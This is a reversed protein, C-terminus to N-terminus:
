IEIENVNTIWRINRMNKQRKKLWGLEMSDKMYLNVFTAVKDARYRLLRGLTQIAEREVSTYSAAIGCELDQVDLGENLAKATCIVNYTGVSIGTLAKEKKNANLTSHYVVAQKGLVKACAEAYKITQSFIITRKEVKAVLEPLIALKAQSNFVCAKRASIGKNLNTARFGLDNAEWGNNEAYRERFDRDLMIKYAITLDGEFYPLNAKVINNARNYIAQEEVTFELELNYQKFNSIWGNRIGDELTITDVVYIDRDALFELQEKSFTASMCVLRPTETNEIVTNFIKADINSYRHSEDLILLDCIRKETTYTNVVFVTANSVEHEILEDEWQKKLAITPVVVYVIKNPNFRKMLLIAVYTKGFGTVYQIAARGNAEIIKDVGLNQRKLKHEDIIM